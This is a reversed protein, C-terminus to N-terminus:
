VGEEGVPIHEACRFLEPILKIGRDIFGHFLDIVGGMADKFSDPAIDLEGTIVGRVIRIVCIAIAARLLSMRTTHM